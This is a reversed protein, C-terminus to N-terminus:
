DVPPKLVDKMERRRLSHFHLMKTNDTFFFVTTCHFKKATSNQISKHCMFHITMKVKESLKKKLVNVLKFIFTLFTKATGKFYYM